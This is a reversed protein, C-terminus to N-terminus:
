CAAPSDAKHMGKTAIGKSGERRYMQREVKAESGNEHNSYWEWLRDLSLLCERRCAEVYREQGITQCAESTFYQTKQEFPM